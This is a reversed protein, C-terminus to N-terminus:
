RATDGAHCGAEPPFIEKAFCVSTPDDTYPGFAPIRHYGSREYLRMAALQRHGTELVLREIGVSRAHAELRQLLALGVGQHRALATVFMRRVESTREDLPRHAVMGVPEPGAFAILYVGRPPTPLNTPLPADPDHLEPYLARAELAAEHLLRLAEPSLPDAERLDIPHVPKVPDKTPPHM